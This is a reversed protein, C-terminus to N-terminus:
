KKHGGIINNNNNDIDITLELGYNEKIESLTAFFQQEFGPLCDGYLKNDKTVGLYWGTNYHIQVFQKTVSKRSINLEDCIQNAVEVGEIYQSLIDRQSNPNISYLKKRAILSEKQKEKILRLLDFSEIEKKVEALRKRENALLTIDRQNNMIIEIMNLEEITVAINKVEDLNVPYQYSKNVEFNYQVDKAKKNEGYAIVYHNSGDLNHYMGSYERNPDYVKFNKELPLCSECMTQDLEVHLDTIAVAVLAQEGEQQKSVKLVEKAWLKLIQNAIQTESETLGLSEFSHVMLVNGNRLLPSFMLTKGNSDTIEVGGGYETTCCYTLLSNNRGSNDANGNPRFCCGSRFGASILNRDQPNFVKIKYEGFDINVNPFKKTTKNEMMRSLQVARAPAREPNTTYQTQIGVYDFVDSIVLPYDRPQYNPIRNYRRHQKDSLGSKKAITKRTNALDSLIENIQSINLKVKLKSLVQKRLFEEEIIDWKDCIINFKSIFMRTDSCYKSFNDRLTKIKENKDELTLDPNSNIKEIESKIYSEMESFGNLFNRIPTNVVKYNAGFLLNILQENIIPVYKNNEQCFMVSSSFTYAEGFLHYLKDYNVPGYKNNLLEIARQHGITTYINFALLRSNEPGINLKLLQKLIDNYHRINMKLLTDYSLSLIDTRFKYDDDLDEFNTIYLLEKLNTINDLNYISREGNLIRNLFLNIYKEDIGLEKYKDIYKNLISDNKERVNSPMSIRKKNLLQLIILTLTKDNNNVYTSFGDSSNLFLDFVEELNSDIKRDFYGIIIDIQEKKIIYGKNLAKTIMEDTIIDIPVYLLNNGDYQLAIDIYELKRKFEDPLRQYLNPYRFLFKNVFIDSYLIENTISNENVKLGNRIADDIMESTLVEVGVNYLLNPNVLLAINVIEPDNRIRESANAFIKPNVELQRLVFYDNDLLYKTAEVNGKQIALDIVEKTLAGPLAYKIANIVTDSGKIAEIVVEPDNRFEDSMESLLHGDRLLISKVIDIDQKLNEPLKKYFFSEGISLNNEIYKLIFTKNNWLMENFDRSYIKGKSLALDMNEETLAGELAYVIPNSFRDENELALKLIEPDNRYKDKLERFLFSDKKVFAKVVDIDDKLEEPIRKYLDYGSNKELYKIIFTKNKLLMENFEHSRISGKALALDMNEETLAGELAYVIPNSFRDENELALKLIEPDNRYEDKLERFLFSDKKVFAKVVDIDDKLEEPIRKYLEYGSNKELYKIIFVKNKLMIESFQHPRLTGKALALDMNEETLAGELAYAILGPYGDDSELALKLIEPDNRYEDTLVSFIYSNKNVVLRIIEIDNKLTDPLKEFNYLNTGKEEIRSKLEEKTM